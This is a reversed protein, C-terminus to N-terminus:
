ACASDFSTTAPLITPRATPRDRINSGDYVVRYQVGFAFKGGVLATVGTDGRRMWDGPLEGISPSSVNPPSSQAAEQALLSTSRLGVFVVATLMLRSVTTRRLSM